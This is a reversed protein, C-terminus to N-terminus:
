RCSSTAATAASQSRESIKTQLDKQTDEKRRDALQQLSGLRKQVIPQEQDHGVQMLYMNYGIDQLKEDHAMVRDTLASLFSKTWDGTSQLGRIELLIDNNSM